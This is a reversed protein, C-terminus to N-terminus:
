PFPLALPCPRGKPHRAPPRCLTAQFGRPPAWVPLHGPRMRPHLGARGQRHTARRRRRLFEARLQHRVDAHLVRDHRSRAARPSSRHGRGDGRPAGRQFRKARRRQGGRQHRPPTCACISTPQSAARKRKPVLLRGLLFEDSGTSLGDSRVFEHTCEKFETDAHSTM